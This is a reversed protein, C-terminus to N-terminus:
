SIEEISRELMSEKKTEEHKREQALSERAKEDINEEHHTQEVEAARNVMTQHRQENKLHQQAMLERAKEDSNM